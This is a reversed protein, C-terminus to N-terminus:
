KSLLEEYVREVKEAMSEQSFLDQAKKLSADAMRKRLEIDKALSVTAMALNEPTDDIVFGTIQDDVISSLMGRNAAIVPKGMAMVERVARCSGDTGPMLFINFDMCSVAEVYDDTRYGPHIVVDELGMTRAPETLLQKEKTGRGIVLLKLRPVEQSAIKIAQLLIHFRRHTQIRAIIGAVIDDEKMGFKQRHTLPGDGPNFRHCDISANIMITKDESLGFTKMDAVRADESVEILKDTLRTLCKRNRLNKKLAVGDHNTRVIPLSRGTRRAAMGGVLHDQNRHVHVIDYAEEKMFVSLNKIDSIYKIFSFHKSLHFRTVPVLGRECASKEISESDPPFPYDDMAKGCALTVDHGRKKLEVCLNLAPEAPGTWKWDSFLHLIKM